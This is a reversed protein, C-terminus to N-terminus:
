QIRLVQHLMESHKERVSLVWPMSSIQKIETTSLPSFKSLVRILGEQNKKCVTRMWHNSKTSVRQFQLRCIRYLM